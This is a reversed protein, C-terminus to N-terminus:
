IANRLRTLAEDTSRIYDMATDLRDHMGGALGPRSPNAQGSPAVAPISGLLRDAMNSARENQHMVFNVLDDLRGIVQELDTQAQADVAAGSPPPSYVRPAVNVGTSQERM